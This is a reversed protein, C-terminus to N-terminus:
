MHGWSYLLEGARHSSDDPGPPSIDDIWTVIIEQLCSLFWPLEKFEFLTRNGKWNFTDLLYGAPVNM